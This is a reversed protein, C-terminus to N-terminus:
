LLKWVVSWSPHGLGWRIKSSVEDWAEIRLCLTGVWGLELLRKWSGRCTVWIEGIESPAGSGAMVLAAGIGAQSCQKLIVPPCGQGGEEIEWGGGQVWSERGGASGQRKGWSVGPSERGIGAVDGWTAKKRLGQTWRM